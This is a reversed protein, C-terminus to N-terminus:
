KLNTYFNSVDENEEMSSLLNEALTKKSEDTIEVLNKAVYELSAQAIKFNALEMKDKVKKLDLPKTYVVLDNEEELVDESGWEILEIYFNEKSEELSISANFFTSTKLQNLIDPVIIVGKHEFMWSVAGVDALKGGNKSFISRIEQNLRNKNDTAGEVIVAIGEPGYGEYVMEDLVESKSSAKAIAREINDKPMNIMKANDIALRLQFNADPDAGKKAALTIQKSVKGFSASKKQDSAEKARHIKAWKSHGSM